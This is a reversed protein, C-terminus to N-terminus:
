RGGRLTLRPDTELRILDIKGSPTRPLQAFLLIRRPVEHAALTSRLSRQLTVVDTDPGAAIAAGVTAGWDPDPIGFVHAELVHPLSEIAAKVLNPDVNEGGTIITGDARGRVHLTGDADMWGSDGTRYWGEHLPPAAVRLGFRDPQGDKSLYGSFLSPGRLEIRDNHVRVEVNRLPLGVDHSRAGCAQTAVQSCAETLGYTALAPWGRKRVTELLEGDIPAGGVLIARVHSPCHWNEQLLRRLQTPVLSLLTVQHREVDAVLAATGSGTGVVLTGRAVLCRTVISLGGIHAPPLALLWRDNPRWGLNAASADAAEMFAGRSLVVRKPEGRSGSTEVVALPRADDPTPLPGEWPLAIEREVPALLPLDLDEIRSRIAPPPLRAHLLYVPAGIEFLAYILTLTEVGSEAVVAVARPNTLDHGASVLHAIQNRVRRALQAFTLTTAGSIVAHADPAQLAAELVSLTM